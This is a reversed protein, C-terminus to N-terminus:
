FPPQFLLASCARECLCVRLVKSLEMIGQVAIYNGGLIVSRLSSCEQEVAFVGREVDAGRMASRAGLWVRGVQLLCATVQLLGAMSKAGEDGIRNWGVDLYTLSVCQGLM